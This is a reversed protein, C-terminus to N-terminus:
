GRAYKRAGDALLMSNRVSSKNIMVSRVKPRITPYETEESRATDIVPPAELVTVFVVMPRPSANECCPGPCRQVASLSWDRRYQTLPAYPLM